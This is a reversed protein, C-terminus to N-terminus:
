RHDLLDSCVCVGLCVFALQFYHGQVKDGCLSAYFGVRGKEEWFNYVFGRIIGVCIVSAVHTGTM